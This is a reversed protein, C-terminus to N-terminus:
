PEKGVYPNKGKRNQLRLPVGPLNFDERLKNTLYRIYSDPLDAPKSIFLVFTPPRTKIQTMYKLRIRRGEVLPPPHRDTTVQLWQNLSATPIRTNWLAEMLLVQKMLAPLNKHNKASIGICPIGKAQPLTYSLKDTIEKLITPAVTDIKNIAIVLGRGEQIVYEALTLDQKELPNQADIVLVVVESFRITELTSSVSLHELTESIRSKKRLGATDTLRIQRGQYAWELSIADRTIGAKDGTLLRNSGLLANILTSKGVNPRGIIALKLPLSEPSNEQFVEPAPISKQPFDKEIKKLAHYLNELGLSHEASLSIPDGFGLKYFDACDYLSKPNECKNAILLIPKHIKQNLSRALELDSSVLGEKGDVVFLIVDALSLVHDTHTNIQALLEPDEFGMLGATDIVEFSLDALHAPLLQWDRTVGPTDAVLALKKGVLRNFLTSKGVNPRGLIAVKMM